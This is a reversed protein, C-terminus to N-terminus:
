AKNALFSDISNCVVELERSYSPLKTLLDDFRSFIFDKYMEKIIEHLPTAGITGSLGILDILTKKLMKIDNVKIYFGIRKDSYRYDSRFRNMIDKLINKDYGVNVMARKLIIGPIKIKKCDDKEVTKDKGSLDSKLYIKFITYLQKLNLPKPLFASMGVKKMKDIEQDLNLASLAVVPVDKFRKNNKIITTARYGDMVPMNIDMLILDVKDGKGLKNLKDIAEQGNRAVIISMRSYELIKLIMRLNIENDEVIMIKSKRFNIFNTILFNPEEPVNAMFRSTDRVYNQNKLLNDDMTADKIRIGTKM